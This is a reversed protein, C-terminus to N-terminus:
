TPEGEKHGAKQEAEEEALKRAAAIRPASTRMFFEVMRHQTEISPMTKMLKVGTEILTAVTM